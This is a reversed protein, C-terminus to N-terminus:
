GGEKGGDERGRVLEVVEGMGMRVAWGEDGEGFVPWEGEGGDGKARESRVLLVGREWWVARDVVVFFREFSSMLVFEGHRRNWEFVEDKDAGADAQMERVRGCVVRHAEVMEKVTGPAGPGRCRVARGFFRGVELRAEGERFWSRYLFNFLREEGLGTSVAADALDVAM